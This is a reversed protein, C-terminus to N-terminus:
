NDLPTFAVTIGSHNTEGELLVTGTLTGNAPGTPGKKCALTNFFLPFLIYFVTFVLLFSLLPSPFFYFDEKGIAIQEKSMIKKTIM